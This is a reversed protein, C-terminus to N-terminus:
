NINVQTTRLVRFPTLMFLDLILKLSTDGIFWSLFPLDEGWFAMNWFIAGDLLSAIFSAFFPAKWWVQYRFNNFIFINLLQSAFFATGSALAVKPTAIWMSLVAGLIFGIYVVRIAKKAGFTRNTLETILFSFPYLFAGWTLWDNIPFLVLYNSAIVILAM